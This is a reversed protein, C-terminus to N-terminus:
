GRGPNRGECHHSRNRPLVMQVPLNASRTRWKAREPREFTIGTDRRPRLKEVKFKAFEGTRTTPKGM